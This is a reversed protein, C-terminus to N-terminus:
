AREERAAVAERWRAAYDAWAAEPVPAKRGELKPKRGSDALLAAGLSTGTSGDSAEVPRGSAAALMRCFLPNRARPGEVVTAGRAGILDLCTATM